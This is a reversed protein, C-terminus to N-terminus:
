PSSPRNRRKRTQYNRLFRGLRDECQVGLHFCFTEQLHQYCVALSCQTLNWFVAIKVTARTHASLCQVGRSAREAAREYEEQERDSRLRIDPPNIGAGEINMVHQDSSVARVAQERCTTGSVTVPTRTIIRLPM